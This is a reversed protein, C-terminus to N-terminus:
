LQRVQPKSLSKPSGPSLVWYLCLPGGRYENKRPLILSMRNVRLVRLTQRYLFTVECALLTPLVAGLCEPTTSLNRDTDTRCHRDRQAAFIASSALIGDAKRSPATIPLATAGRLTDEPSSRFACLYTGLGRGTQRPPLYSATSKQPSDIRDTGRGRGRNDAFDDGSCLFVFFRHHSILSRNAHLWFNGAEYHTKGGVRVDCHKSRAARRVSHNGAVTM